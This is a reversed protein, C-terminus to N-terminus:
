RTSVIQTKSCFAGLMIQPHVFVWLRHKLTFIIYNRFGRYVGTKRYLTPHLPTKMVRAHKRSTCYIIQCQRLVTVINIDPLHYLRLKDGKRTSLIEVQAWKTKFLSVSLCIWLRPICLVQWVPGRLPQIFKLIYHLIHVKFHLTPSCPYWEGM